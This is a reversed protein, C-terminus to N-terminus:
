AAMRDGCFTLPVVEVNEENFTFSQKPAVLAVPTNTVEIVNCANKCVSVDTNGFCGSDQSPLRRAHLSAM